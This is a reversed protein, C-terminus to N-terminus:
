ASEGKGGNFKQNIMITLLNGAIFCLNNPTIGLLQKQGISENFLKLLLCNGHLGLNLFFAPGVGKKESRCVYPLQEDIPSFYEMRNRIFCSLVPIAFLRATM